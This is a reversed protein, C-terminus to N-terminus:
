SPLAISGNLLWFSVWASRRSLEPTILTSNTVQNVDRRLAQTLKQSNFPEIASGETYVQPTFKKPESIPQIAPRAMNRQETMWRQLEAKESGACASLLAAALPVAAWKLLNM